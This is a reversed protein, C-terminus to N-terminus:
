GPGLKDIMAKLKQTRDAWLLMQREALQHQEYIDEAEIHQVEGAFPPHISDASIVTPADDPLTGALGYMHSGKRWSKTVAAREAPDLAHFNVIPLLNLDAVLVVGDPGATRLANRVTKFLTPHPYGHLRYPDRESAREMRMSEADPEHGGKPSWKWPANLAFYGLM